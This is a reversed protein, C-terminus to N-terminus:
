LRFWRRLKDLASEHSPICGCAAVWAVRGDETLAVLIYARDSTWWELSHWAEVSRPKSPPNSGGPGAIDGLTRPRAPETPGTYDDRAPGGLIAEVEALTMGEKIKAANARKIATRPWLLWAAVALGVLGTSPVFLLLRRTRRTM